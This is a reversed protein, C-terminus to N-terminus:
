KNKRKGTIFGAVFCGFLILIFVGINLVIM